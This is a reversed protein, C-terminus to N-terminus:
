ECSWPEVMVQYNELCSNNIFFNFFFVCFFVKGVTFSVSKMKFRLVPINQEGLSSTRYAVSYAEGLSNYECNAFHNSFLFSDILYCLMLRLLWFSFFFSPRSHFLIFFFIISHSLISHFPICQFLVISHFPIFIVFYVSFHTATDIWLGYRIFDM